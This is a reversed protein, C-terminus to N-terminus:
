DGRPDTGLMGYLVIDNLRGRARLHARREGEHTMGLKELVRGSAANGVIHKAHLRLLKLVDFAYDVVARGAETCYGRGWHDVGIWYGLEARHGPRVDMLSFAGLLEGTETLTMAFTVASGNSFREAQGAIWAEAMGDDFPHPVNVTTRAVGWDGALRQVDRADALQFPRLTLRSTVLTPQM